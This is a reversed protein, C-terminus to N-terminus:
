PSLKICEGECAGQASSSAAAAAAAAYGSPCRCAYSGNTNVCLRGEEGGGCVDPDQRCEDVDEQCQGGTWGAQCVCGTVPHCAQMRGSCSCTGRCQPGYRLSPCPSCTRQDSGLAHGAYCSCLFGGQTNHCSQSCAGGGGGEEEEQEQCEDRDVCSSNSNDSPDLKYGSRCFCQTVSNGDPDTSPTCGHDCGASSCLDSTSSDAQCIGTLVLLLTPPSVQSVECTVSDAQCIGTLVLLLSPHYRVSKM